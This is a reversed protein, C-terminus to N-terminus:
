AYHRLAEHTVDASFIVCANGGGNAAFIAQKKNKLKEEPFSVKWTDADVTFNKALVPVLVDSFVHKVLYSAGINTKLRNGSYIYRQISRTDFLIAQYGDTM